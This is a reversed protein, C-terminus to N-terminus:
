GVITKEFFFFFFFCVLTSYNKKKKVMRVQVLHIKKKICFLFKVKTYDFHIHTHFNGRLSKFELGQRGCRM